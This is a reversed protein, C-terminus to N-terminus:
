YSNQHKRRRRRRIAMRVLGALVVVVPPGAFNMLKITSRTSEDVESLPKPTIDRTRIATLGADDVLWDIVNVALAVNQYNRINDDLLFDGDGVVVVRTPSSKTLVSAGQPAKDTRKAYYSKMQGEFAVALPINAENMQDVSPMEQVGISIREGAIAMSKASSSVLVDAKIGRIGALRPDISSVFSFAIQGLNKVVENDQNFEAAVPHFLHAVERSVVIDEVTDTVAANACRVDAVLDTNIIWGYTDFMEDLGLDLVTAKRGSADVVMRDLFFAVRGGSMLYQDIQFKQDETFAQRPAIVVLASIEPPVPKNAGLTVATVSHQKALTQRLVRIRDSSPEGVGTLFGITNAHGTIMKKLSSTVDYELREISSVVPLAENRDAYSLALGVYAKETAFRDNKIVKVQVPTVGAQLASQELSKDRLPNVFQYHFRGHSFARYEDLLEKVARRHNHYPPPLEPTFYATVLANDDLMEILSRTPESLTYLKNSTFDLRTFFGISLLNLFVLLGAVLAFKPIQRAVRSTRITWISEGSERAAFVTALLVFLTIASLYYLIDRSDLVGRAMSTYHSGVSLYEVTSVLPGPIFLLIKDISYLVLVLLFSIILAVIQNNSLTSGLTGAAIFTGGLLFLGLYGGILPGVDMTGLSAITIVYILTPLLAALLLLWAALFKGFVFEGTNVPATQIIEFTGSHKEESILRMTVAPAFFLLLLPASEFFARLSSVNQLFLNGVFYSGSLLLFIMMFIYAVPSDFYARLEKTLIVRTNM